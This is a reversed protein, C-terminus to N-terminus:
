RGGPDAKPAGIEIQSAKAILATILNMGVHTIIEVIEAETHGSERAEFLEATTVAGCQESLSLALKVAVAAKADESSGARNAAMEDGTLGAERGLAIHTALCYECGNHRALALAIRARTQPSLSGGSSVGQLGVFAKLAVPSNALVKVHNPLTGLQAQVADLLPKQKANANRHDVLAIRSM